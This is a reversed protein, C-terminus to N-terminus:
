GVVVARLRVELAVKVFQLLVEIGQVAVILRRISWRWRASVFRSL